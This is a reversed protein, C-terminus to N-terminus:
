TSFVVMTGGAPQAGDPTPMSIYVNGSATTEWETAGVNACNHLLVLGGASAHVSAVENVTTATSGIANYFMCNDFYVFRDMDGSGDIKIFVPTAADALMPFFCNYFANRAAASTLEVNANGASRAVTDLGIYCRNFVNEEGGTIQLNASTAEDASNASGMNMMSVNNFVNRNGTVNICVSATGDQDDGEFLSINQFLCGNGSVTIQPTVISGVTSAPSIRARQSMLSPACMGVLHVNDKSWTITANDRSTGSTNGDNLLYITDGTLDVTKAYAATVTDLAEDPSLGTNSNSGNAPDVFYVKAPGNAATGGGMVPLGWGGVMPFGFSSAGFPFASIDSM